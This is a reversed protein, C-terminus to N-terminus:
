DYISAAIDALESLALESSAVLHFVNGDAWAIVAPDRPDIDDAPPEPGLEYARADHGGVSTERADAGYPRELALARAEAAGAARQQSVVFRDYHAELTRQGIRLERQKHDRVHIRIAELTCGATRSPARPAFDLDDGAAAWSAASIFRPQPM